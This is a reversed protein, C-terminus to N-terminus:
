AESHDTEAAGEALNPQISGPIIQGDFAAMLDHLSADNSIAREAEALRAAALAARRHAPTQQVHEVVSITATVPRDLQQSL